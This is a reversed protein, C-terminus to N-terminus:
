THEASQSGYDGDNPLRVIDSPRRLRTAVVNVVGSDRQVAGDVLLLRAGYVVTRTRRVIAPRVVIDFIGHEDELTFFHHGKAIPPARHVVV